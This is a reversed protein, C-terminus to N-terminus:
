EGEDATKIYIDGVKGLTSEPETNGYYVDSTLRIQDSFQSMYYEMISLKSNFEQYLDKLARFESTSEIAKINGIAAKVNIIFAFSTVINGDEELLLQCQVAGVEQLLLGVQEGDNFFVEISEDDSNKRIESAELMVLLGSPKEASISASITEININSTEEAITIDLGRGNDGQVMDVQPTVTISSMNIQLKSYVIPM